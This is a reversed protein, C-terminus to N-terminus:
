KGASKIGYVLGHGGFVAQLPDCPAMRGSCLPQYTEGEAGRGKRIRYSVLGAEQDMAVEVTYDLEPVAVMTTNTKWAGDVLCAFRCVQEEQYYDKLPEEVIQVRAAMNEPVSATDNPMTFRVAFEVVKLDEARNNDPVFVNDYDGYNVDIVYAGGDARPVESWTGTGHKYVSEDILVERWPVLGIILGRGPESGKLYRVGGEGYVEIERVAASASQGGAQLWSYGEATQLPEYQGDVLVRYQVLLRGASDQQLKVSVEYWTDPAPTIAKSALSLSKWGEASWGAFTTDAGVPTYVAFAAKDEAGLEPLTENGSSMVAMQVSKLPRNGLNTPTFVPGKTKSAYRMYAQGSANRVAYAEAGSAYLKWSGWSGSVAGKDSLSEDAAYEDFTAQYLSNKLWSEWGAWSVGAVLAVAFALVIKNM